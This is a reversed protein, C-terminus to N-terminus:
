HTNFLQLLNTSTMEEDAEFIEFVATKLDLKRAYACISKMEPFEYILEELTPLYAETINNAEAFNRFASFTFGFFPEIRLSHINQDFRNKLINLAENFGPNSNSDILRQKSTFMLDTISDTLSCEFAIVINLPSSDNESLAEKLLKLSSVSFDTPILITDKM